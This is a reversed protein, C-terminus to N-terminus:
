LLTGTCEKTVHAFGLCRDCTWVRDITEEIMATFALDQASNLASSHSDQPPASSTSDTVVDREIDEEGVEMTASQFHGFQM